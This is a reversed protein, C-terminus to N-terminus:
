SKLLLDDTWGGGRILTEEGNVTYGRRGAENIFDAIERIGFRITKEYSPENEIDASIHLNYLGPEGM